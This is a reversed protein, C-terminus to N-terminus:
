NYIYRLVTSNQLIMQLIFAFKIKVVYNSFGRRLLSFAVRTLITTLIATTLQIPNVNAFTLYSDHPM